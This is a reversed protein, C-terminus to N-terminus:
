WTGKRIHTYTYNINKCKISLAIAANLNKIKSNLKNLKVINDFIYYSIKKIGEKM